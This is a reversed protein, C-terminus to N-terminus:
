CVSSVLGEQASEQVRNCPFSARIFQAMLMLDALRAPSSDDRAQQLVGITGPPHIGCSDESSAGVTGGRQSGPGACRTARKAEGTIIPGDSPQAALRCTGVKLLGKEGAGTTKKLPKKPAFITQRIKEVVDPGATAWAQSFAEAKDPAIHINELQQKLSAPKINHHVAQELLFSSTELVLHLAQKELALATQLKQEEDESFSREGKLHLKQLIRSLLRSLKNVEISNIFTVADRISQTEKVILAM